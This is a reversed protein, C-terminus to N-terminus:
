DPAGSLCRCVAFPPPFSIICKQTSQPPPPPSSSFPAFLLTLFLLAENARRRRLTIGEGPSGFFILGGMWVTVSQPTGGCFFITISQSERRLCFVCTPRFPFTPFYRIFLPLSLSCPFIGRFYLPPASFSSCQNPRVENTTFNRAPFAASAGKQTQASFFPVPGCNDM